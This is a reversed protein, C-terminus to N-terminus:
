MIFENISSYSVIHCLFGVQVNSGSSMVAMATENQSRQQKLLSREDTIPTMTISRFSPVRGRYTKYTRGANKQQFINNM